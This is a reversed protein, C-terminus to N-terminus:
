YKKLLVIKSYYFSGDKEVIKLRYYNNAETRSNDAFTYSGSTSNVIADQQGVTVFKQGDYSKEIIFKDIDKEDETKWNIQATENVWKADFSILNLSLLGTVNALAAGPTASCINLGNISTSVIKLNYTGPNSIPITTLVLNGNTTAWAGLSVSVGTVADAISYYNGAIANTITYTISQNASITTNTPTFVPSAPAPACDIKLGAACFTERTGVEQVGISLTGNAYISTAALGTIAWVTTSTITSSILVGDIYLRVTTNAVATGLTGTVSTAGASVPSNISGCRAISTNGAASFNSTNASLSCTGNQATAFYSVGAVANYPATSWTGNAQVTTTSVLVTGAVNYVRITTGAPNGSTGTIPLGAEVQNNADTNISPAATFCTVTRTVFASICFGSAQAMVSVVDNINVAVNAFSYNGGTATTSARFFGNVYLGVFAGTVATGSITTNGNYLVSQTIVPTATPTLNVCSGWIPASECKSPETATIYFSGNPIDNPGGSCPDASGSNNSGNYEWTTNAIVSPSSYSINFGSPSTPTGDTAFLTPVGASFTYIKVVVNTLKTGSMGRRNNVCAGFTAATTSSTNSPSCTTVFISNSLQCLSEGAAQARATIIDGNSLTVGALSLTAGSNVNATTGVPIGNKYVTITAISVSGILNSKTWTGTITNVGAGYSGTVVPAKTCRTTTGGGPLTPPQADIFDGYEDNTNTYNNGDTGYIDSKIGGIAPGPNSVTTATLRIPSSTTLNFPAAQL